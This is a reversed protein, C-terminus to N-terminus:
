ADADTYRRAFRAGLATLVEYGITGASAALQDVSQHPGLIELMM